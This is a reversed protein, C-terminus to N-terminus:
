GLPAHSFCRETVPGQRLGRGAGTSRSQDIAADPRGRAGVNGAADRAVQDDVAGIYGGDRLAAKTTVPSAACPAGAIEPGALDKIVDWDKNAQKIHEEAKAEEQRVEGREEIALDECSFEGRLFGAVV